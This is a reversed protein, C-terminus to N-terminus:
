NPLPIVAATPAAPQPAALSTTHSPLPLDDAAARPTATGVLPALLPDAPSASSAAGGPPMPAAVLGGTAPESAATARAERAAMREREHRHHHAVKHRKHAPALPERTPAAAGPAVFYGVGAAALADAAPAGGTSGPDVYAVRSGPPFVQMQELMALMEAEGLRSRCLRVRVSTPRVPMSPSGTPGDGLKAPKTMGWQWAYVCTVSPSPHGVAYGFPGFSNRAFTESLRMDVGAFAEDLEGAIMAETPQGVAGGFDSPGQSQDVKVIIANEGITNPDGTLVIRQTLVGRAESQLVAAVSGAAPPLEAMPARGDGEQALAEYGAPAPAVSCGALSAAVVCVWAATGIAAM